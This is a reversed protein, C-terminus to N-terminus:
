GYHAQVWKLLEEYTPSEEIVTKLDKLAQVEETHSAPGGLTDKLFAVALRVGPTFRNFRGHDVCFYDLLKAAILDPTDTGQFQHELFDSLSGGQRRFIRLGDIGAAATKIAIAYKSM